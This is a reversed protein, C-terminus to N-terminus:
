NTLDYESILAIGKVEKQQLAKFIHFIQMRSYYKQIQNVTSKRINFNM